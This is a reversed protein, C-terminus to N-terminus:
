IFPGLRMRKVNECWDQLDGIWVARCPPLKTERTRLEDLYRRESASEPRLLLRV